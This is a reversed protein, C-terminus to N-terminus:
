HFNTKTLRISNKEKDKLQLLAYLKGKSFNLLRLNPIEFKHVDESGKPCKYNFILLSM